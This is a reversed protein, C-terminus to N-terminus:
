MNISYHKMAVPNGRHCLKPEGGMRVRQEAQVSEKKKNIKKISQISRTYSIDGSESLTHTHTEIRGVCVCM